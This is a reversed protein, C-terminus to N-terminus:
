FIETQATTLYLNPNQGSMDVKYCVLGTKGGCTLFVLHEGNALLYAPASHSEAHDREGSVPNAAVADGGRFYHIEEVPKGSKGLSDGDLLFVFAKTSIVVLHRGSIKPLVLCSSSGFDMDRADLDKLTIPGHLDGFRIKGNREPTSSAIPDFPRRLQAPQFWDVVELVFHGFAPYNANQRQALKVRLVSLFYDGIEAPSNKSAAIEDFYTERAVDLTNTPVPWMTNGTAIYVSHDPAAGAGGPGWIGGGLVNKTVPLYYQVGLDDANYAVLWGHCKGLDDGYYAAFTAYVTGNILNLAGCQDQMSPDFRFNRDSGIYGNDVLEASQLIGGSFIDISYAFYADSPRQGGEQFVRTYALVFLRNHEPDLLLTGAIGVIPGVNTGPKTAPPGLNVSWISRPQGKASLIDKEGFALLDEEDYAKITNDSSAIYVWTRHPGSARTRNVFVLPAGRTASGLVFDRHKSWEWHGRAGDGFGLRAPNYHFTVCGAIGTTGSLFDTLFRAHKYDDQTLSLYFVFSLYFFLTCGTLVVTLV